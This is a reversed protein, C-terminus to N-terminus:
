TDPCKSKSKQIFHLFAAAHSSSPFSGSQVSARGALYVRGEWCPFTPVISNLILHKKVRPSIFCSFYFRSIAIVNNVDHYIITGLISELSLTLYKILLWFSSAMFAATAEAETQVYRSSACLITHFFM